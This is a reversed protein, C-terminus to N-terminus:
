RRAATVAELIKERDKFGDIEVGSSLDIGLPSLEKLALPINEPTLGGALFFPRTIGQALAWPFTEGTGGSGTDLLILDASSAVATAVSDRDTVSFAKIMPKDTLARLSAIYGEDEQGHFQAMAILGGNLLEAVHEVPANVFVGIPTIAPSLRETLAALTESSISRRSTPVDIIFGVYDPAAENVYQIDEPRRLGCIKIKASM